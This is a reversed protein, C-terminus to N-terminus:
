FIAKLTTFRISPNKKFKIKLFLSFLLIKSRKYEEM